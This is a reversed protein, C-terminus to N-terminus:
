KDMRTKLFEINEKTELTSPHETGLITERIKLTKTYYELARPYDGRCYYVYGINNYSTAVYPHNFGLLSERISLSKEYYELARPYDGQLSYVAGIINYSTAVYLHNDGFLSERISLSKEFYELARSDNGQANYFLGINNYSSTAVDPHNDGFLSVYISLSKEYYELARPYDGQEYYIFGINNCFVASWVSNKGYQQLAQRLGLTYYVLADHYRAQYEYIFRGADNLWEVNTTDLKARLEIYYAASDNEYQIKFNEFYGYCRRALEEKDHQYVEKARQLEAEKEQISKGKELQAAVQSSVDGRSRLLSDARVLEGQEIYNNVRRYFEDMQDYDLQSYREAMEQILMEDNEQESYLKQLALHYKQQTIKNEARLSEIEDERESLQRQLTRRIRRESALQDELQKEPTEMILYLPNPSYVYMMPAADTDVLVYDKKTVSEIIFQNETVPFTFSGDEGRVGVDTRDKISIVAGPLGKGPVHEGNVMRGRTKVIGSQTQALAYTSLLILCLLIIVRKM